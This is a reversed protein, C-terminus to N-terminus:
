NQIYIIYQMFRHRHGIGFKFCNGYILSIYCLACYESLSARQVSCHVISVACQDSIVALQVM